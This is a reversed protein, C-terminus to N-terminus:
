REVFVLIVNTVTRANSDKRKDSQLAEVLVLHWILGKGEVEELRTTCQNLQPNGLEKGKPPLVGRSFKKKRFKEKGSTEFREVKMAVQVLQYFNVQQLSTM